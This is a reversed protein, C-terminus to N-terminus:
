RTVLPAEHSTPRPTWRGGGRRTYRIRHAAGDRTAYTKSLQRVMIAETAVAM